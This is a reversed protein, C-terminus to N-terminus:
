LGFTRLDIRARRGGYALRLHHGSPWRTDASQQQEQGNACIARKRPFNFLGLLSSHPAIGPPGPHGPAVRNPRTADVADVVDVADEADELWDNLRVAPGM